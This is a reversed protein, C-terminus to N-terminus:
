FVTLQIRQYYTPVELTDFLNEPEPVWNPRTPHTSLGLNHRIFSLARSNMWLARLDAVPLHLMRNGQVTFALADLGAVCSATFDVADLASRAGTV